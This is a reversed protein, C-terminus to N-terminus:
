PNARSPYRNPDLTTTTLSLGNVLAIQQRPTADIREALRRAMGEVRTLHTLRELEAKREATAAAWLDMTM